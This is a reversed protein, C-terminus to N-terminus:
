PSPQTDNPTASGNNDIHIGLWVVLTQALCLSSTLSRFSRVEADHIELCVKAYPAIPSLLSDTITVMPIHRAATLQVVEATEPAYPHFSIALLVDEADIAQTQELLMGGSGDLLRASRGIRSFAYALYAAVPFSRRLGIIHIHRGRALQQVADELSKASVATQLYEMSLINASAFERLVDIATPQGTIGQQERFSRIRENYSPLNETLRAQFIRQMESFGSFGFFKAFRILASPQVEAREAIVSVTQLAMDNPNDLAFRAIQRLRKSLDAHRAAIAAQLANLDVPPSSLMTLLQM